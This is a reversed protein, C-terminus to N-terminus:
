PSLPNFLNESAETMLRSKGTGSSQVISCYKAYYPKRENFSDGTRFSAGNKIMYSKFAQVATGRYRRRFAAALRDYEEVQRATDVEVPQRLIASTVTFIIRGVYRLVQEGARRMRSYSGAKWCEILERSLRPSSELLSKMHVLNQLGPKFLRSENDFDIVELFIYKTQPEGKSWPLLQQIKQDQNRHFEEEFTDELLEFGDGEMDIDRNNNSM